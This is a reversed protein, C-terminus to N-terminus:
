GSKKPAAVKKPAPTKNKNVAAMKNDLPAAKKTALKVAGTGILRTADLHTVTRIDGPNFEGNNMTRLVEVKVEDTM